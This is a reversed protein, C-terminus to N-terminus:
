WRGSPQAEKRLGLRKIVTEPLMLKWDDGSVTSLAFNLALFLGVIAVKYTFVAPQLWLFLAACLWLLATQKVYHAVAVQIGSRRLLWVGLPNAVYYSIFSALAPGIFGLIPILILDALITLTTRVLNQGLSRGPFGAATLTYGMLTVLVTMHLVIMLVAFAMSSVAYKESFLLVIIERSFLVAVLAVLALAFSILRLSNDLVWRAQGRKGEALLAAMTPFYVAIYSQALRILATPIRAAITYYAVSSTGVLAGLLLVDVRGSVLWLFRNGQLPLGFRLIEGLLSRQCLFPKPLPLVLYQYV